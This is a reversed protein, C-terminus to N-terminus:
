RVSRRPARSRFRQGQSVTVSLSHSSSSNARAEGADGGQQQGCGKKAGWREAGPGVTERADPLAREIAPVTVLRDSKDEPRFTRGPGAQPVEVAELGAHELGNAQLSAR